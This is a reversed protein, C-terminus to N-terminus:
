VISPPREVAVLSVAEKSTESASVPEEELNNFKKQFGFGPYFVILAFVAVTIM